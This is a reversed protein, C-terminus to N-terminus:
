RRIRGESAFFRNLRDVLVHVSTRLDILSDTTRPVAFYVRDMECDTAERVLRVLTSESDRSAFLAFALAGDVFFPVFALPEFFFQMSLNIHAEYDVWEELGRVELPVYIWVESTTFSREEAVKLTLTDDVWDLALRYIVLPEPRALRIREWRYAIESKSKSTM